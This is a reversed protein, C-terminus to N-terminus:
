LRKHGGTRNYWCHRCGKNLLNLLTLIPLPTIFLHELVFAFLPDKSGLHLFIGLNLMAIHPKTDILIIVRILIMPSSEPKGIVLFPLLLILFLSPPLIWSLRLFSLDFVFHFYRFCYGSIRNNLLQDFKNYVLCIQFLRNSTQSHSFLTASSTVYSALSYIKECQIKNTTMKKWRYVLRLVCIIM